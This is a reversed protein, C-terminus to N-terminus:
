TAQTGQLFSNKITVSGSISVSVWFLNANEILSNATSTTTFAISGGSFYIQNNSSGKAILTGKVQLYGEIKVTSGSEITLTAGSNVAVQEFQYPGNAKTLTINSSIIGNVEKYTQASAHEPRVMLLSSLTLILILVIIFGKHTGM